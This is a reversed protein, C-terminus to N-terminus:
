KLYNTNYKKYLAWHVLFALALFVFYTTIKEGLFGLCTHADTIFPVFIMDPFIFAFLSIKTLNFLIQSLITLVLYLTIPTIKAVFCNTTLLSIGMCIVSFLSVFFSQNLIQILCYLFPTTYYLNTTVYLSTSHGDTPPTNSFVLLCIILFLMLVSFVFTFTGIFNELISHYHYKKYNTRIIENCGSGTNINLTYRYSFIFGVIVFMLIPYVGSNGLGIGNMFVDYGSFLDITKQVALINVDAPIEGNLYTYNQIFWEIIDKAGIFLSVLVFVFSLYIKASCTYIKFREM